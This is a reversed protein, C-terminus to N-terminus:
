PMNEFWMTFGTNVGISEQVWPTLPEMPQMLDSKVCMVMNGQPYDMTWEKPQWSNLNGGKPPPTSTRPSMQMIEVSSNAPNNQGALSLWAVYTSKPDLKLQTIDFYVWGLRFDKEIIVPSSFWLIDNDPKESDWKSIKLILNLDTKDGRWSTSQRLYFGVKTLYEHGSPTKFLQGIATWAKGKTTAYLVRSTSGSIIPPPDPIVANSRNTNGKSNIRDNDGPSCSTFLLAIVFLIFGLNKM